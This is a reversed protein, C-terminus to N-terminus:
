GNSGPPRRRTLRRRPPESLPDGRTAAMASHRRGLRMMHLALDAAMTDARDRAIGAEDAMQRLAAVALRAAEALDDM